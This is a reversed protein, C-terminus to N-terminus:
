FLAIPNVPSGTTHRLRLPALTLLIGAAATAWDLLGSQGLGLHCGDLSGPLARGKQYIAATSPEQHAVVAKGARPGVTIAALASYRRDATLGASARQTV